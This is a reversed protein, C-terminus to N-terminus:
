YSSNTTTITYSGNPNQVITKRPAIDQYFKAMAQQMAVVNNIADQVVGESQLDLQGLNIEVGGINAFANSQQQAMSGATAFMDGQKQVIGAATALDTTGQQGVSQATGIVDKFLGARQTLAAIQDQLGQRRAATAVSSRLVALARDRQGQLAAYAGSNVNVGRRALERAGQEYSNQTQGQADSVASAVYDDPNVKLLADAAGRISNLYDTGMGGRSTDGTILQNYLSMLASGQGGIQQAYPSLADAMKNVNTIAGSISGAARRAEDLDATANTIRGAVRGAAAKASDAGAQATDIAGQYGALAYQDYPKLFIYPLKGSSGGGSGGGSTFSVPSSAGPRTAIGTNGGTSTYSYQQGAGNYIGGSTVVTGFPTSTVQQPLQSQGLPGNYLGSVQTPVGM